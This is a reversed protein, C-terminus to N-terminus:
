VAPDRSLAAASDLFSDFDADWAEILIDSVALDIGRRSAEESFLASNLSQVFAPIGRYSPLPVLSKPSAGDRNTMRSLLSAGPSESGGLVDRHEFLMVLIESLEEEPLRAEAFLTELAWYHDLRFPEGDDELWALMEKLKHFYFSSSPQDMIPRLTRFTSTITEINNWSSELDFLHRLIEAKFPSNSIAEQVIESRLASDFDEVKILDFKGKAAEELLTQAYTACFSQAAQDSKLEAARTEQPRDTAFLITMADQRTKRLDQRLKLILPYPSTPDLETM